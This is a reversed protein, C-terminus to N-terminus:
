ATSNKQAEEAKAYLTQLKEIFQGLYFLQAFPIEFEIPFMPHMWQFVIQTESGDPNMNLKFGIAELRIHLKPIELQQEIKPIGDLGEM